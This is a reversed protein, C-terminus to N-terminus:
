IEKALPYDLMVHLIDEIEDEYHKCWPDGLRIKSKTHNM